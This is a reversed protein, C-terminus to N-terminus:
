REGTKYYEGEHRVSFRLTCGCQQIGAHPFKLTTEGIRRSARALLRQRDRGAVGVRQVQQADDRQLAAIGRGGELRQLVRHRYPRVMRVYWAM